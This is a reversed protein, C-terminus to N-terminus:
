YIFINKFNKGTFYEIDAKTIVDDFNSLGFWLAFKPKNKIQVKRLAKLGEPSALWDILQQESLVSESVRWQIQSIDDAVHLDREVFEELIHKKEVSNPGAKYEIFKPPVDKIKIDIFGQGGDAKKVGFEIEITKGGFTKTDSAIDRMMWSAAKRNSFQPGTLKSLMNEFNVFKVGPNNEIFVGFSFLDDFIEQELKQALSNYPMGEIKKGASKFDGTMNKLMREIEVEGIGIKALGPNRLVLSIKQIYVPNTKMETRGANHLVKWADAAANKDPINEFLEPFKELDARLATKLENSWTAPLGNIIDDASVIKRSTMAGVQADMTAKVTPDYSYGKQQKDWYDRNQKLRAKQEASWNNEEAYRLLDNHAQVELRLIDSVSLRKWGTKEHQMLHMMEEMLVEPTVGSRVLMIGPKGGGGPWYLANAGAADLMADTEKGASTVVNHDRNLGTLLTEVEEPTVETKTALQKIVDEHSQIKPAEVKPVNASPNVPKNKVLAKDNVQMNEYVDWRLQDDVQALAATDAKSAPVFIIEGKEINVQLHMPKGNAVTVTVDVGGNKNRSLQPRGTESQMIPKNAANNVTKAALAEKERQLTALLEPDGTARALQIKVENKLIALTGEDVRAGLRALDKEFQLLEEKTANELREFLKAEGEARAIQGKLVTVADESLKATRMLQSLKAAATRLARIAMYGGGALQLALLKSNLNELAAVTGPDMDEKFSNLVLDSISYALDGVALAIEFFATSTGLTYVSLAIVAVDIIETIQRTTQKNKLYFLNIAPMMRVEGEHASLEYDDRLFLVGIREGPNFTKKQRTTMMALGQVAINVNSWINDTYYEVQIKNESNFFVSYEYVKAGTFLQKLLGPDAWPVVNSHNLGQREMEYQTQEKELKRTKYDETEIPAGFADYVIEGNADLQYQDGMIMGESIVALEDHLRKYQQGHIAADLANYINGNDKQILLMLKDYEKAPCTKVLLLLSEEDTEGVRTWTQPAGLAFAPMLVSLKGFLQNYPEDKLTKGLLTRIYLERKDFDLKAMNAPTMMSIEDDKSYEGANDITTIQTELSIEKMSNLEQFVLAQTYGHFHEYFNDEKLQGRSTGIMKNYFDHRAKAIEAPTKPTQGPVYNENGVNHLIRIVAYRLPENYFLSVSGGMLANVAALQQTDNMDRVVSGPMFVIIKYFPVQTHNSVATNFNALAVSNGSFATELGEDRIRNLTNWEIVDYLKCIRDFNNGTLIQAAGAPYIKSWTILPDAIDNADYTTRYYSDNDELYCAEVLKTMEAVTLTSIQGSTMATLNSIASHYKKADYAAIAETILKRDYVTKTEPTVVSLTETAEYFAKLVENRTQVKLWLANYMKKNNANLLAYLQQRQFGQIPTNRIIVPILWCQNEDLFMYKTFDDLIIHRESVTLLKLCNEDYVKLAQAKFNESIYDVLDEGTVTDDYRGAIKKRLNVIKDQEVKFEIGDRKYLSLQSDPGVPIGTKLLANERAAEAAKKDAEEKKYIILEDYFAPTHVGDAKINLEERPLEKYVVLQAHRTLILFEQSLLQDNFKPLSTIKKVLAKDESTNGAIECLLNYDVKGPTERNNKLNNYQDDPAYNLFFKQRTGGFKTQWYFPADANRPLGMNRAYIWADDSYYAEIVPIGGLSAVQRAEYLLPVADGFNWGDRLQKRTWAKLEYSSVKPQAAKFQLLVEDWHYTTKQTATLETWIKIDSRDAPLPPQLQTQEPNSNTATADTVTVSATTTSNNETNNTTSNDTETNVSSSTVTATSNSTGTVTNQVTSNTGGTVTTQQNDGSINETTKTDDAFVSNFRITQLSIDEDSFTGIPSTYPLLIVDDALPDSGDLQPNLYYLVDVSIGAAAAIREATDGLQVTYKKRPFGDQLVLRLQQVFSRNTQGDKTITSNVALADLQKANQSKQHDTLGEAFTFKFRAM